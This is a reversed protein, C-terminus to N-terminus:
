GKVRDGVPKKPLNGRSAQMVPNDRRIIGTVETALPGTLDMGVPGSLAASLM